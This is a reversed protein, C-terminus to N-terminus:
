IFWRTQFRRLLPLHDQPRPFCEEISYNSTIIIKPPRICISGGKIEASFPHHDAWRKLHDALPALKSDGSPPCWEDIIVCPQDVYGDWWKNPSKLYHDPNELRATLSKGTGSPGWFWHFDMKVQSEPKTQYEAKIRRLTAYCRIRIDADIEELNGTKAHKWAAEYRSIENEGRRKPSVPATGHEFYDGDKKCYDAAQDPRGNAKEIHAGDPLLKKVSSFAVQTKFQVFGQLHPTGSEGIEKGAIIYKCPISLLSQKHEDTFNNVTFCYCRSRSQTKSM